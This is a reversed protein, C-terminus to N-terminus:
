HCAPHMTERPWKGANFLAVNEKQQALTPVCFDTRVQDSLFSENYPALTRGFPLPLGSNNKALPINRDLVYQTGFVQPQKIFQLYRDLTAAAIFRASTTGRYVAEMALIHAFLFDDPSDGHQFLFAADRFDDGTKVEGAALMARVTAQRVAVRKKYEEETFGPGGNPGSSSDEQDEVFLQHVTKTTESREQANPASTQAFLAVGCLSLATLSGVLRLQM